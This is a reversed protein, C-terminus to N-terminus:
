RMQTSKSRSIVPKRLVRIQHGECTCHTGSERLEQTSCPNADHSELIEISLVLSHVHSARWNWFCKQLNDINLGNVALYRPAYITSRVKIRWRRKM